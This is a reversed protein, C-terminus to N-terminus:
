PEDQIMDRWAEIGIEVVEAIDDLQDEQIRVDPSLGGSNCPEGGPGSLYLNTYTFQHGSSLTVQTQSSCKGRTEAGVLLGQKYYSLARVFVEAASATHPGILLVLTEKIVRKDDLSHYTTRKGQSDESVAVSLGGPLFLSASDIAEFLDGGPCYRLDLIIPQAPRKIDALMAALTARTERERFERIRVYSVAGISHLEVTGPRFPQRLLAVTDLGGNRPNRIMIELKDKQTSRFLEWVADFDLGGVALRNILTLFAPETFGQKYPYGGQFPVVMVQIGADFLEIGFNKRNGVERRHEPSVADISHIKAFPDIGRLGENLSEILKRKLDHDALSTFGSSSLLRVIEDIMPEAHVSGLPTAMLSTLMLFSVCRMSRRFFRLSHYVQIM